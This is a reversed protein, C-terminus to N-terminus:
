PVFEVKALKIQGGDRIVDVSVRWSRPQQEKGAANSVRTTVAVLVNATHDTSSQVAFANVTAVTIVKSSEAVKVFDGAQGEFDKKFDGTTSDMLRQVDQRAHNFDLSMLNVVGQSAGAAYEARQRQEAATRDHKWMMWAGLGLLGLSTMVILAAAVRTLIARRSARQPVTSSSRLAAVSKDVDDTAEVADSTAMVEAAATAAVACPEAIDSAPEGAAAPVAETEVAVRRLRIAKARARAAAAMAEAEDAEAEAEEAALSLTDPSEPGGAVFLPSRVHLAESQRSM